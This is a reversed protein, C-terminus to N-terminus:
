SLALSGDMGRQREVKEEGDKRNNMRSSFTLQKERTLGYIV